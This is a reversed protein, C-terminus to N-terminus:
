RIWLTFEPSADEDLQRSLKFSKGFVHSKLHGSISRAPTYGKASHRYIDFHLEDSRADVLWYEPIGARWYQDLLIVTDKKFSADSVVELVMDPIGELEVFGSSAGEVLRVRGSELTRRSIFAGDPQTTLEAGINSFLMGDPVYRGLRGKKVLDGLVRNFEQKVQNHSFFQEKSMDVCIKEDIFCIRGSEPFESSLAWRRFGAHDTVSTPIEITEFDFHITTM